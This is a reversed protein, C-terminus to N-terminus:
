TYVLFGSLKFEIYIYMYVCVCAAYCGLKNEKSKFNEKKKWIYTFKGKFILSIKKFLLIHWIKNM